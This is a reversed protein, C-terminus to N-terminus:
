NVWGSPDVPTPSAYSVPAPYQQPGGGGYITNLGGLGQMIGRYGGNRADYNAKNNAQYASEGAAPNQSAGSLQMLRSISDNYFTNAFGQDYQSLAIQEQGSQTRGQAALTRNVGQEGQSRLWEYGPQQTVSGPNSMLDNLQRAYQPRYPAFPDAAQQAQQNSQGSGDGGLLGNVGSAIGVVSGVTAIDNYGPHKLCGADRSGFM